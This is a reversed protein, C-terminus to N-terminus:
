PDQRITVGISPFRKDFSYIVHQGASRASAWLLADAFSVRGSPRCLLLAQIVISKDLGACRINEKQVLAILQDVAILRPINYTKTLVFAVEALVGGTLVLEIDSDIIRAARDALMPADNMLYRM